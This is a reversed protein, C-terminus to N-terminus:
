QPLKSGQLITVCITIHALGISLSILYTVKLKFRVIILIIYTFLTMDGEETVDIGMPALTFTGTYQNRSSGSTIKQVLRKRRARM